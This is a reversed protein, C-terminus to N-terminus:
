RSVNTGAAAWTVRSFFRRRLRNEAGGRPVVHCGRASRSLVSPSSQEFILGYLSQVVEGILNYWSRTERVPDTNGIKQPYWIKSLGTCFKYPSTKCDRGCDIGTAISRSLGQFDDESSHLLSCKAAERPRLCCTAGAPRLRGGGVVAGLRQPM